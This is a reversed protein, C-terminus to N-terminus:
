ETARHTFATSQAATPTHNVAQHCPEWSLTWISPRFASPVAVAKPCCTIARRWSSPDSRGRPMWTVWCVSTVVSGPAATLASGCPATALASNPTVCASSGGLAGQRTVTVLTASAVTAADIMRFPRATSLM